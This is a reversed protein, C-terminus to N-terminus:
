GARAAVGDGGLVGAQVVVDGGVAAVVGDGDGAAAVPDVRARARVQQDDVPRVEGVVHDTRGERGPRVAVVAVDMVAVVAIVPLVPDVEEADVGEVERQAGPVVLKAGPVAVVGDIAACAIVPDPGAESDVPDVAAVAVVAPLRVLGEGGGVDHEVDLRGLRRALVLVQACAPEAPDLHQGQRGARAVVLDGGGGAIKGVNQVGVRAAVRDRRRPPAVDDIHARVGPGAIQHDHVPARDVVVDDGGDPGRRAAAVVADVM